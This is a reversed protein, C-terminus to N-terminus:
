RAGRQERPHCKKHAAKLDTITLHLYRETTALSAHGLLTQVHRLNANNKLLHTACSHRWVHPTVNKKIRAARTAGRVIQRLAEASLRRGRGTVWLATSARGRLLQPRPGDLYAALTRAATPTLPVVRDRNGKGSQVRLLHEELNIDGVALALLENRRIGTAYLVELLTRNRHELPTSAPMRDLIRNAERPTLVHRPLSKPESAYPLRAAPDHLLRGERRCFQCFGKVATLIHNRNAPGRAAGRRTPLHYLWHQFEGLLDATVRSVDEINSEALFRRLLDLHQGYDEITRPSYDRLRLDALFQECLFAPNM